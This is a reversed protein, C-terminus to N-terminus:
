RGSFAKPLARLGVLCLFWYALAIANVLMSARQTSRVLRSSPIKLHLHHKWHRFGHKIKMRKRYLAYVM